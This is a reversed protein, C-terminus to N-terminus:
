SNDIYNLIYTLYKPYIELINKASVITIDEDMDIYDHALRNRFGTTNALKELLEKEFLKLKKLKEFSDRYTDGISRLDSLIEQNVRVASEVIEECDREIAKLAIYKDNEDSSSDDYKKLSISLKELKESIYDIRKNIEIRNM